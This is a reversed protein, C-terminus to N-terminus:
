YTLGLIILLILTTMGGFFLGYIFPNTSIELKIKNILKRM